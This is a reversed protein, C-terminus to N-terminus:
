IYKRSMKRNKNGSSKEATVACEHALKGKHNAASHISTKIEMLKELDTWSRKKRSTVMEVM